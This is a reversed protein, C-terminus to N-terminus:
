IKRMYFLSLRSATKGQKKGNVIDEQETINNKGTMVTM